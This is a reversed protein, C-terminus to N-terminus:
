RLCFGFHNSFLDGKTQLYSKQLLIFKVKKQTGTSGKAEQSFVKMRFFQGRSLNFGCSTKGRFFFCLFRTIVLGFSHLSSTKEVFVVM